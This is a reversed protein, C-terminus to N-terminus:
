LWVSALMVLIDAADTVSERCVQLSDGGLAYSATCSKLAYLSFLSTLTSAMLEHFRGSNM